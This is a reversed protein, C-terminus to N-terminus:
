ILPTNHLATCSHGAYGIETISSWDVVVVVILKIQMVIVFNSM